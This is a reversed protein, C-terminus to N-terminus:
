TSQFMFVTVYMLAICPPTIYQDCHALEFETANLTTLPITINPGPIPPSFPQNASTRFGRKELERKRADLSRGNSAKGGALLKLGPTVYDIHDKLHEPVYYEDCAVHKSGTAAHEYHYYKTKLLREAEHVKADFQVWQKNTSHSIRAPDIGSNM